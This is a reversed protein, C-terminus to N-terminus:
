DTGMYYGLSEGKKIGTDTFYVWEIGEDLDTTLLGVKKLQTLNGREEKTIDLMPVGSWNCADKSIKNFLEESKETIKM